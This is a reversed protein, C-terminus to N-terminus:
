RAYVRLRGPSVGAVHFRELYLPRAGWVVVTDIGYRELERPDNVVGYYHAGAAWALYLSEHWRANSAFRKGRLNVQRAEIRAVRGNDDFRHPLVAPVVFSLVLIVAAARPLQEIADAAVVLLLAYAVLVYRELITLPLYGCVFLAATGIAFSSRRKLLAWAVLPIALFSWSSVIRALDVVNGATRRLVHEPPGYAVRSTADDWGSVAGETPPPLLGMAEVAPHSHWNYSGASSLTVHGYKASMAVIWPLAVVLCACIGPLSRRRKVIAYHILFFPLAYAKALYAAGAVLGAAIGSRPILWLYFLILALLLVDPTIESAAWALVAPAFTATVIARTRPERNELLLWMAVIAAAGSAFTLLKCAVLDDVGLALLPVLLWSFLPSWHSNVIGLRAIDIYSVGDANLQWRAHPFLIAAAIAYGGLILTLLKGM